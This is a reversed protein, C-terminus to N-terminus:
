KKYAYTSFTYNEHKKRNESEQCMYHKGMVTTNTTKDSKGATEEYFISLPKM